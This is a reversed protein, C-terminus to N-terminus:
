LGWAKRMREERDDDVAKLIDYGPPIEGTHVWFRGKKVLSPRRDVPKLVVLLVTACSDLEVDVLMPENDVPTAFMLLWNVDSEVEILLVVSECFEVPTAASMFPVPESLGVTVAPEFETAIPEFEVSPPREFTTDTPLSVCCRCIMM